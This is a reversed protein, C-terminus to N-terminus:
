DLEPDCNFGWSLIWDRVVDLNTQYVPPINIQRPSLFYEPFLQGMEVKNLFIEV